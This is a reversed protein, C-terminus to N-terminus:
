APSCRIRDISFFITLVRYLMLRETVWRMYPSIVVIQIICFEYYNRYFALYAIYTCRLMKSFERLLQQWPFAVVGKWQMASNCTATLLIFGSLKAM